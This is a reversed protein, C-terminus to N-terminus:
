GRSVQFGADRRALLLLNRPSLERACFIGLCVGYGREVLYMARDLVLWLELLRRFAHRVLDLASVEVFREEGRRAWAAFDCRAPLTIGKRAAQLRCYAEFGGALTAADVPPLPTFVDCGSSERILADLGLQWAQVRRRRRRVSAGATITEQVATRLDRDGLAPWHLAGAGSLAAPPDRTLHYCCPAISLAPVDRAAGIDILRRHLDGCAHLAVGHRQTDLFAAAQPSMVDCCKGEVPLGLERARRSCDGALRSERELAHVRLAQWQLALAHSLHGKGACWDVIELGPVPTVTAAFAEVQAWKRGPVDRFFGRPWSRLTHGPLAPVSELTEIVDVPLWPNLLARAALPDAHLTEAEPECTQRLRRSLASLESEWALRPACFAHEQWLSRHARLLAGIAELRAEIEGSASDLGVSIRPL